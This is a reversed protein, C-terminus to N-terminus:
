CINIVGASVIYGAASVPAAADLVAADFSCCSGT